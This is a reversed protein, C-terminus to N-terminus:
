DYLIRKKVLSFNELRLRRLFDLAPTLSITLYDNGPFLTGRWSAMIVSICLRNCMIHLICQIEKKNLDIISLYGMLLSKLSEYTSDELIAIYAMCTAIEVCRNSFVMDGLDIIGTINDNKKCHNSAPVAGHCCLDSYTCSRWFFMGRPAVGGGLIGHMRLLRMYM